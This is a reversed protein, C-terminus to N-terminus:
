LFRKHWSRSIPVEWKKQYSEKTDVMNNFVITHSLLVNRKIMSEFENLNVTKIDDEVRYAVILRDLFNMGFKSQLSKVFRICKDISCGRASTINQNLGIVLFRKYILDYSSEIDKDHSTWNKLFFKLEKRLFEIENNTLLRNSQYIWVRSNPPLTNFSVYM